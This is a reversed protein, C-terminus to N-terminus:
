ASYHALRPDKSRLAFIKPMEGKSLILEKQELNHLISHIRSFPIGCKDSILKAQSEGARNLFAYVKAEEQTINMLEPHKEIFFTM